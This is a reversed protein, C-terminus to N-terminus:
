SLKMKIQKFIDDSTMIKYGKKKDDNYFQKLDNISPCYPGIFDQRLQFKHVSMFKKVDPHINSKLLAEIEKKNDIITKFTRLYVRNYLTEPDIKISFKHDAYKIPLYGFALGIIIIDKNPNKTITDKFWEMNLNDKAKFIEHM